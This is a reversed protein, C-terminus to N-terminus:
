AGTLVGRADGRRARGGGGDGTLGLARAGHAPLAGDHGRIRAAETWPPGSGRRGTGADHVWAV